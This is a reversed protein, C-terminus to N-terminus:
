GDSGPRRGHRKEDHRQVVAVTRDDGCQAYRATVSRKIEDRSATTLRAPNSFPDGAPRNASLTRVFGDTALLFPPEGKTRLLRARLTHLGGPLSDTRNSVVSPNPARSESQMIWGDEGDRDPSAPTLLGSDGVSLWYCYTVGQSYQFCAATLTTAAAANRKGPPLDEPVWSSASHDILSQSLGAAVVTVVEGALTQWRSPDLLIPHESDFITKLNLMSGNVAWRSAVHANRTSGVGDAVAVLVGGNGLVAVDWYDECLWNRSRHTSGLMSVGLVRFHSSRIDALTQWDDQRGDRQPIPDSTPESPATVEGSRKEGAVTSKELGAKEYPSSEVRTGTQVNQSEIHTQPVPDELREDLTRESRPGPRPAAPEEFAGSPHSGHSTTMHPDGEWRPDSRKPRVRRSLGLMLLVRSLPSRAENQQWDSRRSSPAGLLVLSILLVMAVVATLAVLSLQVLM